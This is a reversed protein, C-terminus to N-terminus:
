RSLAPPPGGAGARLLSALHKRVLAMETETVAPMDSPLTHVADTGEGVLYLAAASRGLLCFFRRPEWGLEQAKVAAEPTYAFDPKGAANTVPHAQVKGSRAWALFHPMSEIFFVLEKETYPDQAYVDPAPTVTWPAAPKPAAAQKSAAASKRASQKPPISQAALLPYADLSVCLALAAPICTWVFLRRL